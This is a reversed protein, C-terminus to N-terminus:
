GGEELRFIVPRCVSWKMTPDLTSVERQWLQCFQVDAVGWGWGQDNAVVWVQPQAASGSQFRLLRCAASVVSGPPGNVTRRIRECQERGPAYVLIHEEQPLLAGYSIMCRPLNGGVNFSGTNVGGKYPVRSDPEPDGVPACPSTNDSGDAPVTPWPASRTGRFDAFAVWVDQGSAGVDPRAIGACGAFLALVAVSLAVRAATRLRVAAAGNRSVLRVRAGDKYALMRWGDVKEEYIWGARHFPERVLTPAMPTYRPIVFPWEVRPARGRPM